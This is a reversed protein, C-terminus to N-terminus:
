TIFHCIIIVLLSLNKILQNRIDSIVRTSMAGVDYLHGRVFVQPKGNKDEVIAIATNVNLRECESGFLNLLTDLNEDFIGTHQVEHSEDEINM